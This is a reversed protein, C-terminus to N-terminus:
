CDRLYRTTASDLQLASYMAAVEVVICASQNAQSSPLSSPLSALASSSLTSLLDGQCKGLVGDEMFPALVDPDLIM